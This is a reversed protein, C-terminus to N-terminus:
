RWSEGGDIADEASDAVLGDHLATQLTHVVYGSTELTGPADGRALPQLSMVLEEPADAGVYDLADQLPTDADELLGAV